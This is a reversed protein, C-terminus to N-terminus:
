IKTQTKGKDQEVQGNKKGYTEIAWEIGRRVLESVNTGAYDAVSRLEEYLQSTMRLNFRVSKNQKAKM